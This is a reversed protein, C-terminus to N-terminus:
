KDMVEYNERELGLGIQNIVVNDVHNWFIEDQKQTALAEVGCANFLDLLRKKGFGYKENLNIAILKYMRRICAQNEKNIYEYAVNEVYKNLEKKQKPSLRNGLSLNCKM